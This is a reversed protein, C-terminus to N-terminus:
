MHLCEIRYSLGLLNTCPKSVVASGSSLIEDIQEDISEKMSTCKNAAAISVNSDLLRPQPGAEEDMSVLDRRPSCSSYVYKCTGYYFGKCLLFCNLAKRGQRLQHKSAELLLTNVFTDSLIDHEEDTCFAREATNLGNSYSKLHANTDKDGTAGSDGNGSVDKISNGKGNVDSIDDDDGNDNLIIRVAIKDLDLGNKDYEAFVWSATVALLILLSTFRTKYMTTYPM